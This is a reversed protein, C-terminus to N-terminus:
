KKNKKSNNFYLSYASVTSVTTVNGEVKVNESTRVLKVKKGNIYM